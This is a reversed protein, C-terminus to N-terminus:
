AVWRAAADWAAILQELTPMDVATRAYLERMRQLDRWTDVTVRVDPRALAAPAAREVTRFLDTRRRIFTTVHERDAPLDALSAARALAATKVAEVGGGYPLGDERVYDADAMGALLRSPADLDVGPNDGTARVVVDLGFTRACTVYRDLVDAGAGRFAPVDLARAVQTLREDELLTTTALIVPTRGAKLRRLCQELVPRGALMAMAKRPLRESAMRAQLVIGARM